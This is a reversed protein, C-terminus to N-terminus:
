QYRQTWYRSSSRTPSCLATTHFNTYVLGRQAIKTLNPMKIKGGFMEWAGFGTDDFVIYLINPSGQPATPEAYPSWDPVSDRIDLAVKGNFNKSM